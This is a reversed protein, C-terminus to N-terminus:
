GQVPSKAFAKVKPFCEHLVEFLYAAKAQIHPSKCAETRDSAQEPGMFNEFIRARDEGAFTKSYGDIFYIESDEADPTYEPFAASDIDMGDETVYTYFYDFGKPNLAMWKDYDFGKAKGDLTMADIKYELHHWLEHYLCNRIMDADNSSIDLVIINKDEMQLSYGMASSIGTEYGRILTGCLYLDLGKMEDYVFELFFNEGLKKEVSELIDLATGIAREDEIPNVAFDPFFRIADERTHITIGCEKELERIRRNNDAPNGAGSFYNPVPDSEPTYASITETYNWLGIGANQENEYTMLVYPSAASDLGFFRYLNEAGDLQLVGALKGQQRDYIRVLEKESDNEAYSDTLFFRDNSDYLISGAENEEELAFSMVLRNRDLDVWRVVPDDLFGYFLISNRGAIRNDNSNGIELKGTEALYYGDGEKDGSESYGDVFLIQRDELMGSLACDAYIEQFDTLKEAQEKSFDYRWLETQNEILYLVENTQDFYYEGIERGIECTKELQWDANYILVQGEYSFCYVRGDQGPRVALCTKEESQCPVPESVAGTRINKKAIYWKERDSWRSDTDCLIVAYTDQECQFGDFPTKGPIEKEDMLRYIHDQIQELSITEEKQTEEAASVTETQQQEKKSDGCGGCSLLVAAATLFATWQLVGKKM